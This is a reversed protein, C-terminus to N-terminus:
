AVSIAILKLQGICMLINKYLFIKISLLLQALIAHM